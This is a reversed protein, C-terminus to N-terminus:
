EQPRSPRRERQSLIADGRARVETPLSAEVSHWVHTRAYRQVSGPVKWRGRRQVQEFTRYGSALDRSAGTHRAAHPSTEYSKGLVSSAALRWWYRYQSPTISFVRDSPRLGECRRRLISTAYPDELIVGQDRGTKSRSGRSSRGLHLIVKDHHLVVDQCELECLDQERLYADVAPFICDAAVHATTNRQRRLWEEMVALAQLAMPEGQKVISMEQWAKSARWSRPLNRTAEPLLYGLGNLLLAGQLPHKDRLYCSATLYITVVRDLDAWTHARVSHAEAWDLFDRVAPLYSKLATDDNVSHVLLREMEAPSMGKGGTERVRKWAFAGRKLDRIERKESAVEMPPAELSSRGTDHVSTNPELKKPRRARLRAGPPAPVSEAHALCCIFVVLMSCSAPPRRRAGSNSKSGM